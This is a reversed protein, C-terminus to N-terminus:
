TAEKLASLFKEHYGAIMKGNKSVDNNIIRRATIADDEVDNFYHGLKRTTFWGEAMGRFMIQTAILSDLALDPHLVLDRDDILGLAASAKDYNEKWTLQVFGRGYYVNGNKDVRGYAKGKGRGIERIPWMKRACEHYVTALMYALWRLDDTPTDLDWYMLIIKQGDVQQQKMAGSFLSARVASFYIDHNIM